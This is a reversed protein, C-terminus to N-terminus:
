VRRDKCVTERLVMREKLELLGRLVKSGLNGLPEQSDRIVLLALLAQNDLLGVLDLIELRGLMVQIVQRGRLVKFGKLGLIGERDLLDRHVLHELIAERDPSDLRVPIGQCALTVLHARKVRPALSVRRVQQALTGEQDRSDMQVLSAMQVLRERHAVLAQRVPLDLIAQQDQLVRRVQIERLVPLDSMVWQVKLEVRRHLALIELLDKQGRHDQIEGLDLLDRLVLHVMLALSDRLDSQDLLELPEPQEQFELHVMVEELVQPDELELLDLHGLIVEQAVRDRHDVIVQLAMVDQPVRLERIM